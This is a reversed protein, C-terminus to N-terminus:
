ILFNNTIPWIIGYFIGVHLEVFLYSFISFNELFVILLM